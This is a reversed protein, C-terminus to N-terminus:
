SCNTLTSPDPKAVPGLDSFGRTNWVTPVLISQSFGIGYSRSGALGMLLDHSKKPTERIPADLPGPM